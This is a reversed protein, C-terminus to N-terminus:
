DHSIIQDFEEPIIGYDACLWDKCTWQEVIDWEYKHPINDWLREFAEKNTFAGLLNNGRVVLITYNKM